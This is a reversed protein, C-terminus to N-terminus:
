KNKEAEPTELLKEFIPRVSEFNKDQSGVLVLLAEGLFEPLVPHFICGCRELVPNLLAMLQKVLARHHYKRYDNGSDMRAPHKMWIGGYLQFFQDLTESVMQVATLGSSTRALRRKLSLTMKAWDDTMVSKVLEEKSPFYNYITGVAVGCAEAVSRITLASYGEHVLVERSFALIKGRLDDIKKPM